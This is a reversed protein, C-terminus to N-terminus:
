FYGGIWNRLPQSDTGTTVIVTRDTLVTELIQERYVAVPPSTTILDITPIDYVKFNVLRDIGGNAAAIATALSQGGITVLRNDLTISRPTSRLKDSENPRGLSFRHYTYELGDITLPTLSQNQLRLVGTLEITAIIL